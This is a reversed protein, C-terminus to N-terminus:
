GRVQDGTGGRRVARDPGGGGAQFCQQIATALGEEVEDRGGLVYEGCFIVPLENDTDGIQRELAELRDYYIGEDVDVYQVALSTGFQRELDPIIREKVHACQPCDSSTFVTIHVVIPEEAGVTRSSLLYSISCLCLLCLSIWLVSRGVPASGNADALSRRKM